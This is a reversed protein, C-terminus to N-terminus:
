HNLKFVKGDFTMMKAKDVLLPSYEYGDIYVKKGVIKYPYKKSQHDKKDGKLNMDPLAYVKIFASGNKFLIEHFIYVDYAGNTTAVCRHRIIAKYTKETQIQGFIVLHVPLLLILLIYKKM